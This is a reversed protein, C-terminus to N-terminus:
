AQLDKKIKYRESEIDITPLSNTDACNVNILFLQPFPSWRWFYEVATM